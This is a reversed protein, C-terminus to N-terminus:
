AGWLAWSKEVAGGGVMIGVIAIVSRWSSEDQANGVDRGVDGTGGMWELVGEEELSGRGAASAFAVIM